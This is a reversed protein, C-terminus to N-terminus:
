CGQARLIAAAAGAVDDATEDPGVSGGKAGYGTRVAITRCGAAKGAAVDIDKDGVMWCKRLDLGFDASAEELMGPSPKRRHTPASSPDPCFYVRDVLGGLQREFEAAVAEYEAMLIRGSGIGSQNTVVINLWGAARLSALAALAGDFVRVKAPDNCYHVEEMLTGDRDWFVAKSGNAM